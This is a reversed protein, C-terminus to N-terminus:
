RLSQLYNCFFTNDMYRQTDLLHGVMRDKPKVISSDAYEITRFDEILYECRPHVKRNPHRSFIANSLASSEAHSPNKRLFDMKAPNLVNQIIQFDTLRSNAKRSMATADGTVRIHMGGYKTKIHKCLEETYSEEVQRDKASILRFEDLTYYFDHGFQHVTATAPSVNFDFSVYLTLKPNVEITDDIYSDKWMYLFPNSVEPTGWEGLFYVRHFNPSAAGKIKIKAVDEISLFPNNRWSTEIIKRDITISTGDIETIQPWKADFFYGKVWSRHDTPNFSFLMQKYHPLDGRLRTDIQMFDEQTFEPLEEMWAGTPKHISKIKESDDLGMCIIENGTPIHLITHTTKNLNFESSFGSENIASLIEKWISDQVTRGVKRLCLFRHGQESITRIVIKQACFVSKGSGATGKFVLYPTTDYLYPLYTENIKL